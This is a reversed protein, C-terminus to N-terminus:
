PQRVAARVAAVHSGEHSGEHSGVQLSSILTLSGPVAEMGPSSFFRARSGWLHRGPRLWLTGSCCLTPPPRLQGDSGDHRLKGLITPVSLRPPRREQSAWRASAQAMTVSSPCMTWRATPSWAVGAPLSWVTVQGVRWARTAPLEQHVRSAICSQKQAGLAPGEWSPAARHSRAAGLFPIRLCGHVATSRFTVLVWERAAAM